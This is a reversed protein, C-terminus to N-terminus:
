TLQGSPLSNCGILASWAWGRFFVCRFDHSVNSMHNQTLVRTSTKPVKLYNTLPHRNGWDYPYNWLNQAMGMDHPWCSSGLRPKGPRWCGKWPAWEARTWASEGPLRDYGAMVQFISFFMSLITMYGNPGMRAFVFVCVCM